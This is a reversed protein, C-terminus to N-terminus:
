ETFIKMIMLKKSQATDLTTFTLIKTCNKDIKLLSSDFNNLNIM